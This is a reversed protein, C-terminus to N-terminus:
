RWRDIRHGARMRHVKIDPRANTSGLKLRNVYQPLRFVGHADAGVLDAELMLEAIKDADSASVGSKVM